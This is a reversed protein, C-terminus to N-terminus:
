RVFGCTVWEHWIVGIWSELQESPDAQNLGGNRGDCGGMADAWRTREASSDVPMFALAFSTHVIDPFVFFCRVLYWKFFWCQGGFPTLNSFESTKPLKLVNSLEIIHM